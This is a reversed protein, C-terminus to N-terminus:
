RSRNRLPENQDLIDAVSPLKDYSAIIQSTEAIRRLRGMEEEREDQNTIDVFATIFRETEGSKAVIWIDGDLYPTPRDELQQIETGPGGVEIAYAHRCLDDIVDPPIIRDIGQRALFRRVYSNDLLFLRGTVSAEFCGSGDTKRLAPILNQDYYEPLVFIPVSNRVISEYLGLLRKKNERRNERHVMQGASISMCANITSRKLKGFRHDTEIAKRFERHFVMKARPQGMLMPAFQSLTGRITVLEIEKLTAFDERWFASVTPYHAISAQRGSRLKNIEIDGSHVVEEVENLANMVPRKGELCEVKLRIQKAVSAWAEEGLRSQVISRGKVTIAQLEGLWYHAPIDIAEVLIPIIDVEGRKKRKRALSLEKEFCYDSLLFSATLLLV